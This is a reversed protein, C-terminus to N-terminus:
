AVSFSQKMKFHGNLFLCDLLSSLVKENSNDSKAYKYWVLQIQLPVDQFPNRLKQKLTLNRIKLFLHEFHGEEKRLNGELQM